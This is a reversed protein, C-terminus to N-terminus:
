LGESEMEPETVNVRSVDDGIMGIGVALKNRNIGTSSGSPSSMAKQMMSTRAVMGMTGMLGGITRGLRRGSEIHKRHKEAKKEMRQLKLEFMTRQFADGAVNGFSDISNHASAAYRQARDYESQLKKVKQMKKMCRNYATKHHTQNVAYAGIGVKLLTGNAHLLNSYKDSVNYESLGNTGTTKLSNSSARKSNIPTKDKKKSSTKSM